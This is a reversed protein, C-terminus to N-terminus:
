LSRGSAAGPPKKSRPWPKSAREDGHRHITRRGRSARAPGRRAPFGPRAASREGGRDGTRHTRPNATLTVVRERDEREVITPESTSRITTLDALPILRGDASRVGLRGFSALGTGATSRVAVDVLGSQLRSRAALAGGTAIRATQAADDPSVNLLLARELDVDVQLRPQLGGSTTRVDTAYPNRQLTLALRAAAGAIVADPVMASMAKIRDVIDDGSANPDSLNVAIQALNTAFVDGSGNFARGASTIVHRVDPDDLLRRALRQVGADTRDLPTGGPFTLDVAVEGRNVPPSFETAIAGTVLPLLSLAFTTAAAM